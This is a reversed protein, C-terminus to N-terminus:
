WLNGIGHPWTQLGPLVVYDQHLHLCCDNYIRQLPLYGGKKERVQIHLLLTKSWAAMKATKGLFSKNRLHQEVAVTM